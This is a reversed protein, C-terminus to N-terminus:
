SKEASVTVKVGALAPCKALLGTLWEIASPSTTSPAVVLLGAGDERLEGRLLTALARLLARPALEGGASSPSALLARELLAAALVAPYRHGEVRTRAELAERVRSPVRVSIQVLTEKLM